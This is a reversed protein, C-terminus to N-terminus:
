KCKFLKKLVDSQKCYENLTIEFSASVGAMFASHAFAGIEKGSVEDKSMMEELENFVQGYFESKLCAERVKGLIGTEPVAETPVVKKVAVKKAVPKSAVPKAVPKAVVKASKKMTEKKAGIKKPATKKAVAKKIM